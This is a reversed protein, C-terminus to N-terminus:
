KVQNNLQPQYTIQFQVTNDQASQSTNKYVQQRYNYSLGINVEPTWRWNVNPSVAYFNRNLASSQTSTQEYISYSTSLNSTWRENITYSPTLSIQTQTQLGQTTPTQNQSGVLSVNGQEFSKQISAQYIQGIGTKTTTEPLPGNLSHLSSTMTDLYVLQNNYITYKYKHSQDSISYNAGASVYATWQKPFSHQWGVQAQNNNTNLGRTSNKYISGSVTLNLKDNETYLHNFTSSLQQYDYDTLYSNSNKEYATNAYSYNLSVSNLESLQYSVSPAVNLQKAMVQILDYGLITGSNSPASSLSSQNNYSGDFGWQLRNYKHSYDVNFLQESINLASKNDYFLQNWTFNSSLQMDDDRASASVAPSLKSIWFGQQPNPTLYINSSFRQSSTISPTFTYDYAYCNISACVLTPM